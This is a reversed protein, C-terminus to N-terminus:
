SGALQEPWPTLSLSGWSAMLVHTGRARVPDASIEDPPRGHAGRPRGTLQSTGGINRRTPARMPGATTKVVFSAGHQKCRM